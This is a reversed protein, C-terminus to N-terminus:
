LHKKLHNLAKQLRKDPDNGYIAFLDLLNLYGKELFFPGYAFVDVEDYPTHPLKDEAAIFHNPSLKRFAKKSLAYGNEGPYLDTYHALAEEANPIDSLPKGHLCYRKMLLPNRLLPFLLKNFAKEDHLRAYRTKTASGEKELLGLGYLTRNAESISCPSFPLEKQVDAIGYFGYPHFFYFEALAQAILDYRRPREHKLRDVKLLHFPVYAEGDLTVFPINRELLIAKDASSLSRLEFLIPEKHGLRLLAELALLIEGSSLHTKAEAFLFTESGKLEYLVFKQNVGIPAKLSAKNLSYGEPFALKLLSSHRTDM